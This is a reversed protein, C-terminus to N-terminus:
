PGPLAWLRYFASNRTSSEQYQNTGGQGAPPNTFIPLWSGETLSFSRELVSTRTAPLALFRINVNTHSSDLEIKLRPPPVWFNTSAVFQEWATFVFTRDGPGPWGLAYVNTVPVIVQAVLMNTIQVFTAGTVKFESGSRAVLGPTLWRTGPNPLNVVVQAFYEHGVHSVSLTTQRNTPYWAVFGV